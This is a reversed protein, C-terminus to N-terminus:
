NNVNSPMASESEEAKRATDREEDRESNSSNKRESILPASVVRFNPLALGLRGLEGHLGGGRRFSAATEGNTFNIFTATSRGVLEFGTRLKANVCPV